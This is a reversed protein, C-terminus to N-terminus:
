GGAVMIATVKNESCCALIARHDKPNNGSNRSPNVRSKRMTPIPAACAAVRAADVIKRGSLVFVGGRGIDWGGLFPSPTGSVGLDFM